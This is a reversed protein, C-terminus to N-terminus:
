DREFLDPHQELMRAMFSRGGELTWHSMDWVALHHDPLVFMCKEGECIADVKSVFVTNADLVLKAKMEEDIAKSVNYFRKYAETNLEDGTVGNQVAPIAYQHFKWFGVTQGLFIIKVSPKQQRIFDILLQADDKGERAFLNSIVVYNAMGLKVSNRLDRIEKICEPSAPPNAPDINRWCVAHLWQRRIQYTDGITYTLANAVDTSHSDGIVLVRRNPADFTALDVSHTQAYDITDLRLQELNQFDTISSAKQRGPWGGNAWANSAPLILLFAAIMCALGFAAPSLKPRGPCPRRLPTEVFRYMLFALVVTVALLTVKTALTVPDLREYSYFVWLPWHILYASYSILGIGVSIPNRLLWGTYRAQGAYILLATGICPMLANYYPFVITDTYTVVPVFVLMLGVVLVIEKLWNHRADIQPAWLLLAGIGFEFMRFPTLYFITAAGDKFAPALVPTYKDILSSQGDHFVHNGLISLLSVTVIMGAAGRKGGFRLSLAILAPWFMYFQEEVALSWTHLLPKFVADADFYGSESWFYFNSLSAIAHLLAGGFRRLDDPSFRIYAAVFCCALVVFLAPFLRRARRLYFNGFRFGGTDTVERTILRTILYGSIVFFVDVGVYGGGFGSVGFHYLIVSLVAIARIGDIDPRYHM